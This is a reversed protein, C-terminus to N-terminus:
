RYMGCLSRAQNMTLLEAEGGDSNAGGQDIERYIRQQNAIAKANDHCVVDRSHDGEAKAEEGVLLIGKSGIGLSIMDLDAFEQAHCEDAHPQQLRDDDM